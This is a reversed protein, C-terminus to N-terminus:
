HTFLSYGPYSRGRNGELMSSRLPTQDNKEIRGVRVHLILAAANGRKIFQNAREYKFDLHIKYM